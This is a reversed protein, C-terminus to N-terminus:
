RIRWRKSPPWHLNAVTQRDRWTHGQPIDHLHDGVWRPGELQSRSHSNLVILGYMGFPRSIFCRPNNIFLVKEPRKDSSRVPAVHSPFKYDFSDDILPSCLYDIKASIFYDNRVM